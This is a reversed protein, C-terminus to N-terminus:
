IMTVVLCRRDMRRCFTLRWNGKEQIRCRWKEFLVEGNVVDGLDINTTELLIQPQGVNCAVLFLGMLIVLLLVWKSM